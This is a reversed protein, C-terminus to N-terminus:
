AKLKKMEAVLEAEKDIKQVQNVELNEGAAKKAKLKAIDDLKKQLKRIEKEKDLGGGSSPAGSPPASSNANSVAPGKEAVKKAEKRKKNKLASKSLEGGGANDAAGPPPGKPSIGVPTKATKYVGNSGVSGPPADSPRNRAGPPRYAQKSATPTKSEVGGAIPRAVIPFSTPHTGPASPQWSVEWLEDVSPAAILERQQQGNEGGPTAGAPTGTSSNTRTNQVVTEHFLTSSYHWIKFGNGARLRPACTSTMLYQGDPSWRVDTTDNAEFQAAKKKGSVDWIEMNGRLNGFGGLLLLNGLPNFLVMNRPGTGYEFVSECKKNYLTAKAPMYGYVVAFLVPKVNPAWEVSYVPGEKGLPVMCTDGDVNAYCLQTKGYYSAGTKDVEAQALILVSKGDVGSWKAEMRDANMFSKVAVADSEANFKPSVFLKCFGPGGKQGPVYVSLRGGGTNNDAKPSLFYSDLGKLSLRSQLPGASFQNDQYFVIEGNPARVCCVKEDTTWQPCWGESKRHQFSHLIKGSEADWLRVNNEELNKALVEWTVLIKASPSWRIFTTRSSNELRATVEWKGAKWSAIRVGNTGGDSWAFKQGDVPSFSMVKCNSSPDRPFGSGDDGGGVKGADPKFQAPNPASMMYLGQSGRVALTAGSM